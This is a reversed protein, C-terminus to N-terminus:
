NSARQSLRASSSSFPLKVTFTSGHGPESQLTIEGGMLRCFQETVALGLGTGGYKRTIGGDGQQFPMFILKQKEKEIGIGTDIVKFMLYDDSCNMDLTIIGNETFKAANSLLNLLIQLLKGRDIQIIEHYCQLNVCLTNNNKDIFPMVTKEVHSVLEALSFEDASLEM